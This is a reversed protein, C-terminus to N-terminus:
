DFRSKPFDDVSEFLQGFTWPGLGKFVLLIAVQSQTKPQMHGGEGGGALRM